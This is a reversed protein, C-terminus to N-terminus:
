KVGEDTTDHLGAVGNSRVEFDLSLNGKLKRFEEAVEAKSATAVVMDDAGLGKLIILKSAVDYLLDNIQKNKVIEANKLRSNESQYKIKESWTVGRAYTKDLRAQKVKLKEQNIARMENHDNMADDILMELMMRRSMSYDKSLKDLKKISAPTLSTTIPKNKINNAYIYQSWRKRMTTLFEVDTIRLLTAQLTEQSLPLHSYQLDGVQSLYNQVWELMNKDNKLWDKLGRQKKIVGSAAM